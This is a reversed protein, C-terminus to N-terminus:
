PEKYIYDHDISELQIMYTWFDLPAHVSSKPNQRWESFERYDTVTM